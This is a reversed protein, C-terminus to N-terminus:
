KNLAESVARACGSVVRTEWDPNILDFGAVNSISHASTYTRKLETGCDYKASISSPYRVKRARSSTHSAWTRAISVVEAECHPCRCPLETFLETPERMAAIADRVFKWAVDNNWDSGFQERCASRLAEAVRAVMEPEAM